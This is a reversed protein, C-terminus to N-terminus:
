PTGPLRAFARHWAGAVWGMLSLSTSLILTLCRVSFLGLGSSLQWFSLFGQSSYSRVDEQPMRILYGLLRWGMVVFLGSVSLSLFLADNGHRFVLDNPNYQMRSGLYVALGHVNAGLRELTRGTWCIGVLCAAASTTACTASSHLWACDIRWKEIGAEGAGGAIKWGCINKWYPCKQRSM